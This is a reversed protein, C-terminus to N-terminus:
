KRTMRSGTPRAAPTRHDATRVVHSRKFEDHDRRKARCLQLAAAQRPHVAIVGVGDESLALHSLAFHRGLLQSDFRCSNLRTPKSVVIPGLRAACWAPLWCALAGAAVMAAIVAAMTPADEVGLLM